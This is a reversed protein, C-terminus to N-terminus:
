PFPILCAGSAQARRVWLKTTDWGASSKRARQRTQIIKGSPLVVTQRVMLSRIQAPAGQFSVANLIWEAKSTGYRVANTGSCGTAIMGGITAGPGPDIQPPTLSAARSLHLLTGCSVPFFLPMGRKALEANLDEWGVGPEVTCDSDEESIRLIKNMRSM